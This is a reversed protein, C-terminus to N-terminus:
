LGLRLLKGPSATEHAFLNSPVLAGVTLRVGLEGYDPGFAITSFPQEQAREALGFPLKVSNKTWGAPFHVVFFKRSIRRFTNRGYSDLGTVYTFAVQFGDIHGDVSQGNGDDVFDRRRGEVQPRRLLAVALNM